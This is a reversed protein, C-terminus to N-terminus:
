KIAQNVEVLSITMLITKQRAIRLLNNSERWIIVSVPSLVGVKVDHVHQLLSGPPTLLSLCTFLPVKLTTDRGMNGPQLWGGEEEWNLARGYSSTMLSIPPPM